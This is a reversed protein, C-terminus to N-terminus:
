PIIYAVMEERHSQTERHDLLNFGEDAWQILVRQATSIDREDCRLVALLM